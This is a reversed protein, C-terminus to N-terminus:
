ALINKKFEIVDSNPALGPSCYNAYKHKDFDSMRRAYLATRDTVKNVKV